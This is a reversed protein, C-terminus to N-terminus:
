VYRLWVQLKWIRTQKLIHSWKTIVLCKFILHNTLVTYIKLRSFRTDIFIFSLLQFSEVKIFTSPKNSDM